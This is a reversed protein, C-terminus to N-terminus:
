TRVPECFKNISTQVAEDVTQGALILARSERFLAPIQLVSIQRNQALRYYVQEIQHDMAKEAATKKTRQRM